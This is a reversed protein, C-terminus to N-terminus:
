NIMMKIRFYKKFYFNGVIILHILLINIIKLIIDWYM